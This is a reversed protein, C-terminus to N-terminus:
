EPEQLLYFPHPVYNGGQTGDSRFLVFAIEVGSFFASFVMTIILSIYINM